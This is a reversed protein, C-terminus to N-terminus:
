QLYRTVQSNSTGNVNQRQANDSDSLQDQYFYNEGNRDKVEGTQDQNEVIDVAQDQENEENNGSQELTSFSDSAQLQALSNGTASSRQEAWLSVRQKQVAKKAQINQLVSAFDNDTQDQYNSGKNVRDQFSYKTTEQEQDVGNPEAAFASTSAFLTGVLLGASVIKKMNLVNRVEKFKKDMGVDYRWLNIIEKAHTTYSKNPITPFGPIEAFIWKFICKEESKKFIRM